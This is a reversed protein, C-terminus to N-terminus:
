SVDFMIHEIRDKKHKNRKDMKLAAKNSSLLKIVIM